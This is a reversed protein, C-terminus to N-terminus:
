TYSRAGVIQLRRPLSTLAENSDLYRVSRPPVILGHVVAPRWWSSNFLAIATKRTAAPARQKPPRM